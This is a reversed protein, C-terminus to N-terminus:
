RVRVYSDGADEIMWYILDFFAGRFAYIEAEGDFIFYGNFMGKEYFEFTYLAASKREFELCVRNTYTTLDAKVTKPSVHLEELGEYMNRIAERDESYFLYERLEDDYEQEYPDDLNYESSEMTVTLKDAFWMYDPLSIYPWDDMGRHFFLLSVILASAPILLVSLCLVIIPVIKEHKAIKM